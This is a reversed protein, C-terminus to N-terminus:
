QLRFVIPMAMPMRVPKGRQKGPIMKPLKSIIREAEKELSKDPGRAGVVSVSGDKEIVFSINVRGQINNDLAVEPYRQNKQIFKQLEEQFCQRWQAKPKKECGPYVPVDEIIAFPVDIEVEAEQVV